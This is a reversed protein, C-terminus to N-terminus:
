AVAIVAKVYKRVVLGLLNELSLFSIRLRKELSSSIVISVVDGNFYKFAQLDAM